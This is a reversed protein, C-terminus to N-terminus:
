ERIGLLRRLLGALLKPSKIVVIKMSVEKGVQAPLCLRLWHASIGCPVPAGGRSFDGCYPDRGGSCLRVGGSFSVMGLAYGGSRENRPSLILIDAKAEQQARRM